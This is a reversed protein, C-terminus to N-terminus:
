KKGEMNEQDDQQKKTKPLKKFKKEKTKRELINKRKKDELNLEQIQLNSSDFYVHVKTGDKKTKQIGEVSVRLKYNDVTNIKGIKGKFEGLMIKIKDGKVLPINRKNYKKRLEKNLNASLLKHKKNLPANVRYKRQKRPQRSKIWKTSFKQKM